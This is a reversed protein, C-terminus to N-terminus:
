VRSIPALSNQHRLSQFRMFNKAIAICVVKSLKNGISKSIRQVQSNGYKRLFIEKPIEKLSRHM